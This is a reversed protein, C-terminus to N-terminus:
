KQVVEKKKSRSKRKKQKKKAEYKVKDVYKVTTGVVDAVENRQIGLDSLILIMEEKTKDKFASATTIKILTNLKDIIPDSQEKSM